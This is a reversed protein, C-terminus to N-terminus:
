FYIKYLKDSAGYITVEALDNISLLKSKLLDAEDKLQELSLSSSSISVEALRRRVELATVIPDDMDSPLNNKTYNVVDEVKKTMEFRNEGNKLELYISFKGPNIVSSISDIGDVSKLEDEIERVIIKDLIDVSAGSYSGSISIMDLEFNPFIEKPIKNYSYIGAFFILLTGNKSM